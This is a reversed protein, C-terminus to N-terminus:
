HFLSVDYGWWGSFFFSFSVGRTGDGAACVHTPPLPLSLSSLPCHMQDCASGWKQPISFMIYRCSKLFFFCGLTSRCKPLLWCLWAGSAQAPKRSVRSPTGTITRGRLWQPSFQPVSPAPEVRPQAHLLSRLRMGAGPARARATTPHPAPSTQPKSPAQRNHPTSSLWWAATFKTSKHIEKGHNQHSFGRM